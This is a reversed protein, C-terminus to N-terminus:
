PQRSAIPSAKVARIVCIVLAILSAWYFGLLWYVLAADLRLTKILILSGGLVTCILLHVATSVLGAQAVAPQSAGRSLIMPVLALEGAILCSVGAFIMERAHPDIGLGVCAAYGSVAVVAIVGPIVILAPM